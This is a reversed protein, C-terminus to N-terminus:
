QITSTASETDDAPGGPDPYRTPPAAAPPVNGPPEWGVLASTPGPLIASLDGAYVDVNAQEAANFPSPRNGCPRVGPHNGEFYCGRYLAASYTAPTAGDFCLAAKAIRFIVALMYRYGDPEDDFAAFWVAYKIDGPHTDYKLIGVAGPRHAQGYTGDGYLWWGDALKGANIAALEAANCARLQAAGEDDAMPWSDGNRTEYEAHALVLAIQAVTPRDGPAALLWGLYCATAKSRWRAVAPTLETDM